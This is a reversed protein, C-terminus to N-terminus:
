YISVFNVLGDILGDSLQLGLVEVQDVEDINM